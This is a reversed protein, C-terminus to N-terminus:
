GSKIKPYSRALKRRADRSTFRWHVTVQAENRSQVWAAAERRLAEIEGIRRDLCQRELASIEIEAMNLRSAHKPTPHLVLREARKRAEEPPLVLYLAGLTHTNLDDCVMHIKRSDSFVDDTLRVLFRGWDEKTRKETVVVDRWGLDPALVM